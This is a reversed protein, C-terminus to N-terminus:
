ISRIRFIYALLLLDEITRRGGNVKKVRKENIIVRHLRADQRKERKVGDQKVLDRVKNKNRERKSIGTGIWNGWGPLTNDIVKEEEDLMTEAKEKEFDAVVEDGAFAKRILDQNRMLLPSRRDREDESERESDSTKLTNKFVVDEIKPKKGPTRTGKSKSQLEGDSIHAPTKETIHSKSIILAVDSDRKKKDDIASSRSISLWPNDLNEPPLHKSDPRSRQASKQNNLWNKSSVGNRSKVNTRHVVVDRGKEETDRLVENDSNTIEEEDFESPNRRQLIDIKSDTEQAPGYSRRGSAEETDEEMSSQEGMLEKRLSEVNADNRAKRLADANKMFKMSSLGTKPADMYTNDKADEDLEELKRQVKRLRVQNQDEIRKDASDDSDSDLSDSYDGGGDIERGAIRTKLDEARTAMEIVGNRADEDWAARGTDKIGKAWKSERHRAGMREEARRRDNREQEGESDDMGAATMSSQELQAHREREKRHVRRYSKSKIKKIRKSRTEERFLLDRARRLEARRAQIDQSSVKNAPLEKFLEEDENKLGDGLAILGSDQLINQIAIELDTLPRSNIKPPLSQAGHTAATELDPLPFSLHEARRNYKVTSIWRSLTEKSKEYAAARDLLDQQRRPLPVELKKPIGNRNRSLSTEGDALIKLSKKLHSDTISPILDAITLKTKTSLNYESPALSEQSKDVIDYRQSTNGDRTDLDAVFAQLSTLKSSEDEAESDSLISDGSGSSGNGFSVRDEDGLSNTAYQTKGRVEAEPRKEQDKNSADLLTALDVAGDGLGDSDESHQRGDRKERFETEHFGKGKLQSKRSSVRTRKSRTNSSGRFIFGEFKEEDSSGMAEDSDLDSDDESNVHGVMWENGDSDSGIKVDSGLLDKDVGRKRKAQGVGGDEKVEQQENDRRSKFKNGEIEGLRNPRIRDDSPNQKEAISLANLSRKQKHDRIKPKKPLPTRTSQRGPM